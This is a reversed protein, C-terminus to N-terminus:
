KIKLVDLYLSINKLMVEDQWPIKEKGRKQWSLM